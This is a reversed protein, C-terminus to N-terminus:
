TAGAKKPGPQNAHECGDVFGQNCARDYLELPMLNALPGKGDRLIIQYDTLRPAGRLPTATRRLDLNACGAAFGLDCARRFAYAAREPLIAPRLLIGYENCAWGSGTSCHEVLVVTLTRCANPRGNDCARQWFPVWRGPHSDGVVHTASMVCFVTIWVGLYALHRRRDVLRRGLTAPNFRKLTHSRAIRDVGKITLNIIPVGMLKDYFTPASIAGLVSYLIVVSIAYLLGFVVRGLDTEPSTSPDTFLLHMGLFVSIPIYSDSFFYVGTLAFYVLGFAYLAVVASMTMTTVGFLFQGPLGVLFIILYIQPAHNLTTAIEHGYTIGSMGTLLLGLSFLGLPFAAPNFVHVRREGREWRIFEKAGFGVAIMLFQLWFWDPKFWLFLNISLIIPFPGFGLVYNDRRTWSLLMEFAYAFLLQAAILHGLYYVERWHWGWYLFVATQACAQVYHQKRLAIQLTLARRRLVSTFLLGNWLILCTAAASFSCALPVNGKVALLLTGAALPATLALPLALVHRGALCRRHDVARSHAHGLESQAM